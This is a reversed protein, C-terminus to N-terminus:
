HSTAKLWADFDKHAIAQLPVDSALIEADISAVENQERAQWFSFSAMLAAVAALVGFALRPHHWIYEGWKGGGSSAHAHVLVPEGIPLAALARERAAKLRSVISQDLGSVSRNLHQLITRKFEQENM